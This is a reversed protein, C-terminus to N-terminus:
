VAGKGSIMAWPSKFLISLDLWLSKERAYKADLTMRKEFNIDSRGSVQWLGTIGPRVQEMQAVLSKTKPFRIQQAELEDPYYPRPGVLSMDGRLVNILQPLEDLSHKRIFQGFPTVRPDEKLKYGSRKYEEYIKKFSPDSTLLEHANAIMSRFKYLRFPKGDKGSRLPTDALIPGQSTLKIIVATVIIIPLFIIGLIIAGFIDMMRKLFDYSM